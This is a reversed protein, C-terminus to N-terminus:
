NSVDRDTLHNVYGVSGLILLAISWVVPILLTSGGGKHRRARLIDKHAHLNTETDRLLQKTKTTLSNTVDRVMQVKMPNNFLNPLM